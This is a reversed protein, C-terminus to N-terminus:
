ATKNLYSSTESIIGQNNKFKNQPRKTPYLRTTNKKENQQQKADNDKTTQQRLRHFAKINRAM